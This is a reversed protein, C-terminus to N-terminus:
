SSDSGYINNNYFNPLTLLDKQKKNKYRAKLTFAISILIFLPLIFSLLIHAFQVGKFLQIEQGGSQAINELIGTRLLMNNILNM